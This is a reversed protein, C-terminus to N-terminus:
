RTDRTRGARHNHGGRHPRPPPDQGLAAEVDLLGGPEHEVRPRRDHERDEAEVQQAVAEAVEEVGLDAAEGGFALAGGSPNTTFPGSYSITMGGCRRAYRGVTM